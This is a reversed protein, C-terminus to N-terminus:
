HQPWEGPWAALRRRSVFRRPERDIPDEFALEAALLQLPASFDGRDVDRLEPYFPDNVIPAGIRAMHLRLQHTRGTHPVLRYLGLEGATSILEIDSESNPPLELEQARLVGRTKTIHSRVRAPLRAPDLAPAVALYAKAARRDRFLNQYRGRWQRETTFMLVGATSRDLRHAPALEPLDLENRLRVLATHVIHQGRPITALFHPKDVVVIRQDRYLVDIAFPVPVEDPLDRHFWILQGVLYPSGADLPIGDSDVYGGAAFMEDIRSNDVRTLREYLHERVTAWRNEDPLRYRAADLGHRQPLPSIPM